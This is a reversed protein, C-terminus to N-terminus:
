LSYNHHIPRRGCLDVRTLDDAADSTYLLCGTAWGWGTDPGRHTSLGVSLDTAASPVRIAASLTLRVGDKGDRRWAVAQHPAGVVVAVDGEVPSRQAIPDAFALGALLGIM